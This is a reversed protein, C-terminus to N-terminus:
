SVRRADAVVREVIRTAVGLHASPGQVLTWDMSGAVGRDAAVQRAIDVVSQRDRRARASAERVLAQADDPSMAGSLLLSLAETLM